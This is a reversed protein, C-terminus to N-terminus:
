HSIYDSLTMGVANESGDSGLLFEVREVVELILSNGNSAYVNGM